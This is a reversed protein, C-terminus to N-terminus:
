VCTTMINTTSAILKREHPNNEYLIRGSTIDMAISSSSNNQAKPVPILLMFILTNIVILKSFKHNKKRVM